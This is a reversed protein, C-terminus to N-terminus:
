RGMKIATLSRSSYRLNHLERKKLYTAILFTPTKTRLVLVPSLGKLVEEKINISICDRSSQREERKLNSPNM